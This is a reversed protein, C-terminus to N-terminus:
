KPEVFLHWVFPGDTWTGIHEYGPLVEHETGVILFKRVDQSDTNAHLIWLCMHGQQWDLKVFKEVLPMAMMFVGPTRLPLQYKYITRM